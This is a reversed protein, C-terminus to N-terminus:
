ARRAINAKSLSPGMQMAIRTFGQRVVIKKILPLFQVIQRVRKHGKLLLTITLPGHSPGLRCNGIAHALEEQINVM